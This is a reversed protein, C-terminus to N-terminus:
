DHKYTDRHPRKLPPPVAQSLSATVAPEAAFGDRLARSLPVQDM